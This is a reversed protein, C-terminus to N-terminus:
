NCINLSTSPPELADFVAIAEDLSGYSFDYCDCVDILGTLAEFGQLGLLTYNFSNEILRMFAAGKPKSILQASAHAEFRPYIVWTPAVPMMAQRVSEIPAKMHAVTGKATDASSRGIVVEPAFSRIVEISENKLSIPRPIPSVEGTKPSFLVLEDSFLRWGRAVLGACLTSKGSGPPAPMIVTHGDKEVVAAHLTLYNHAFQSVCWNLGWELVPFAQEYPLPKFPSKHDFLFLVQPRFWRRLNRPPSVEVHFDAFGSEQEIPYDAYLQQIGNIVSPISSRIQAIFPGIRLRLGQHRLQTNLECQTLSSLEM